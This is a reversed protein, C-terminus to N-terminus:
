NFYIFGCSILISQRFLISLSHSLQKIFIWYWWDVSLMVPIGTSYYMDTVRENNPLFGTHNNNVTPNVINHDHINNNNVLPTTMAVGVNVGSTDTSRTHFHHNTSYTTSFHSIYDNGLILLQPNIIKMILLCIENTILNILLWIIFKSKMIQYSFCKVMLVPLCLLALFNEIMEFCFTSILLYKLFLLEYRHNYQHHQHPNIMKSRTQLISSIPLISSVPTSSPYSFKLNQKAPITFQLFIEIIQILNYCVSGTLQFLLLFHLLNTKFWNFNKLLVRPYNLIRKLQKDHNLLYSLIITQLATSLLIFFYNLYCFLIQLYSHLKYSFLHVSLLIISLLSLTGFMYPKKFYSYYHM